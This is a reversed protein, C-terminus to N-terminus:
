RSKASKRIALKLLEAPDIGLGQALAPMEYDTVERIQSEIKALVVRGYDWGGINLKATLQEQTMGKKERLERIVPGVINRRKRM